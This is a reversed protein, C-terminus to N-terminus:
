REERAPGGADRGGLQMMMRLEGHKADRVGGGRRDVGREHGNTGGASDAGAGSTAWAEVADVEFSGVGWDDDYGLREDDFGSRVGTSRVGREGRGVGSRCGALMPAGFTAIGAVCRGRELNGDIWLASRGSGPRSAVGGFGFGNPFRDSKFGSACWVHSANAGTSAYVGVRTWSDDAEDDSADADDDDAAAAVERGGGEDNNTKREQISKTFKRAKGFAFVFTGADGQFEARDGRVSEGASLSVYGGLVDGAKTRVCVLVPGCTKATIRSVFTSFGAGDEVSAYVRRWTAKGDSGGSHTSGSPISAALLWAGARTLVDRRSDSARRRGSTRPSSTLPAGAADRLRPALSARASRLLLSRATTPLSPFRRAAEGPRARSMTRLAALPPARADVEDDVEDDDDDDDDDATATTAMKALDVLAGARLLADAEELAAARSDRCRALHVVADALSFGYPAGVGTADDVSPVRRMLVAAVRRPLDFADAVEAESRLRGCRSSLAAVDDATVPVHDEPGARPFADLLELVEASTAGGLAEVADDLARPAPRSAGAGM